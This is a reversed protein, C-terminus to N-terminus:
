FLPGMFVRLIISNILLKMYITSHIFIFEESNLAGVFALHLVEKHKKGVTAGEGGEGGRGM